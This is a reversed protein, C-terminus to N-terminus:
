IDNAAGNRRTSQYAFRTGLRDWVTAGNRSEGDSLMVEENTEPDFMFIQAFESGGADRTYMLHRAGPQRSVSGVPEEYFTQQRRAGLPMDVRHISDVDGFRTSVYIGTGDETWARFGASRVSQYRNLDHVVERPIEPVDQVVLNGNNLVREEVEATAALPLLLLLALSRLSYLWSTM